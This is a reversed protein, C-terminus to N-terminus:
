SVARDEVLVNKDDLLQIIYRGPHIDLNVKMQIAGFEREGSTRFTISLSDNTLGNISIFASDNLVLTYRKEEKWKRPIKVVRKISDYFEIKPQITDGKEEILLIRGENISSLPYAFSLIPDAKFQKLNGGRINSNFTLPKPKEPEGEVVKKKKSKEKLNFGLTDLVLDNDEVQLYLSDQDVNKLWM